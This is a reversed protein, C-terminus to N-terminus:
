HTTEPPSNCTPTHKTRLHPKSSQGILRPGSDIKPAITFVIDPDASHSKVSDVVIAVSAWQITEDAEVYVMPKPLNKLSNQISDDLGDWTTKKSNLLIKPEVAAGRDSIRIVFPQVLLVDSTEPDGAKLLRIEVGMPARFSSFTMFAALAIALGPTALLAFAPIKSFQRRLSYKPFLRIGTASNKAPSRWRLHIKLELKDRLWLLYNSSGAAALAVLLGCATTLLSAAIYTTAIAMAAARQMGVGRFSELIGFCTGALGLYPAILTISQLTRVARNLEVSLARVDGGPERFADCCRYSDRIFVVAIYALMVALLFVDLRSIWDLWGWLYLANWERDYTQWSTVCLVLM